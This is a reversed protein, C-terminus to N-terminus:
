GRATESRLISHRRRDGARRAEVPPPAEVVRLAAAGSTILPRPAINRPPLIASRRDEAERKAAAIAAEVLDCIASARLVGGRQARGARRGSRSIQVGARLVNPRSRKHTRALRVRLGFRFVSDRAKQAPKADANFARAMKMGTKDLDFEAEVGNFLGALRAEKELTNGNPLRWRYGDKEAPRCSTSTRRGSKDDAAREVFIPYLAAPIVRLKSTCTLAEDPLLLARRALDTSQCKRADHLLRVKSRTKFVPDDSFGRGARGKTETHALIDNAEGKDSEAARSGARSPIRAREAATANPSNVPIAPRALVARQAATEKPAQARSQPSWLRVANLAPPM